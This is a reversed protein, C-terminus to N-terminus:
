WHVISKIGHVRKLWDLMEDHPGLLKFRSEGDEDFFACLGEDDDVGDATAPLLKLRLGTRTLIMHDSM